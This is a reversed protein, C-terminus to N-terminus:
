LLGLRSLVSIARRGAPVRGCSHSRVPCWGYQTLSPLPRSPLGPVRTYSYECSVKKSHTPMSPLRSMGNHVQHDISIGGVAGQEWHFIGGANPRLYALGVFFPGISVAVREGEGHSRKLKM